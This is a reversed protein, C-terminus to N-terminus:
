APERRPEVLFSEPIGLMMGIGTDLVGKPHADHGFKAFVHSKVHAAQKRSLPQLPSFFRSALWVAAAWVRGCRPAVIHLPIGVHQFKIVQM